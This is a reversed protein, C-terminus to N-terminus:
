KRTIIYNWLEGCDDDENVLQIKIHLHDPLVYNIKDVLEERIQKWYGFRLTINGNKDAGVEVDDIEYVITGIVSMTKLNIRDGM